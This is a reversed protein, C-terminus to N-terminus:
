EERLGTGNTLESQIFRQFLQAFNKKEKDKVVLKFSIGFM